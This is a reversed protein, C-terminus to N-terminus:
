SIFDSLSCFMTETVLKGGVTMLLTLHKNFKPNRPDPRDPDPEVKLNRKRPSKVSFGWPALFICSINLMLTSYHPSIHWGSGLFSSFFSVNLVGYEQKSLFYSVYKRAMTVRLLSQIWDRVYFLFVLCFTPFLPKWVNAIFCHLVTIRSSLVVLDILHARSSVWVTAWLCNRPQLTQFDPQTSFSSIPIRPALHRSNTPCFIM